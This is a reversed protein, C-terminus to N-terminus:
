GIRAVLEAALAGLVVVAWPPTRWFVLLLFAVLGILFDRPGLIASTWVPSYLAALV